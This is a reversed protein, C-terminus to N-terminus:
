GRCLNWKDFRSFQGFLRPWTVNHTVAATLIEKARRDKIPSGAARLEVIKDKLFQQRVVEAKPRMADKARQLDKSAKRWEPMTLTTTIRSSFLM